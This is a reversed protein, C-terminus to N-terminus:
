EGSETQDPTTEPNPNTETSPTSSGNGNSGSNDEEPASVDSSGNQTQNNTSEGNGPTPESDDTGPEEPDTTGPTEPETTGPEQPDTSGPEQPDTAGPEQPDTAGPEEPDTAGPEEPDTAGPEQPDTTGPEQPDTAGPEQPDTSGPEQPDTAGPVVCDTDGEVCGGYGEGQTPDTCEEGVCADPIDCDGTCYNTEFTGYLYIKNDENAYSVLDKNIVTVQNEYTEETFWGLFSEDDIVPLEVDGMTVDYTTPDFPDWDENVYVIEYTIAECEMHINIQETIPTSFDFESTMDEDTYYKCSSYGVPLYEEATKGEEVYKEEIEDGLIYTVTYTTPETPEETETPKEEEKESDDEKTKAGTYVAIVKRVIERTEVGDDDKEDKKDPIVITDNPKVPEPEEKKDCGIVLTVITALIILIAIIAFIILRKDHSDDEDLFNEEVEVEKVKPKPSNHYTKNNKEAAVKKVEKM